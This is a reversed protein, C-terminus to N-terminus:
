LISEVKRRLIFQPGSNQSENMKGAVQDIIHDYKGNQKHDSVHRIGGRNLSIYLYQLRIM